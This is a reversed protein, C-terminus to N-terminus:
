VEKTKTRNRFHVRNMIKVFQNPAPSNERLGRVTKGTNFTNRSNGLAQIYRNIIELFFCTRVTYIVSGPDAKRFEEEFSEEAGHM